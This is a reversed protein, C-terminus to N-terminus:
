NRSLTVTKTTFYDQEAVESYADVIGQILYKFGWTTISDGEINRDDDTHSEEVWAPLENLLKINIIGQPLGTARLTIMHSPEFSTIAAFMDPRYKEVSLVEFNDSVEYHNVDTLYDNSLPLSSFDVGVSFEFEGNERTANTLRKPDNRDKKFDGKKNYATSPEYVIQYDSPLFFRAHDIHGALSEIYNDDFYSNLLESKGFIFIYYPRTQRIVVGGTTVAFYYAGSFHSNLKVILAQINEGELRDIFRNRTEFGESILSTIPDTKDQIDYIADSIFVSINEHGANDLAIQFMANLDNGSIDGQNFCNPNLCNIFDQASNEIPTIKIDVPGNILNYDVEVNDRRFNTNQALNSVALVFNNGGVHSEDRTVYGFMGGSNDVFFSAKEASTLTSDNEETSGNGNINNNPRECASVFLFTILVSYTIYRGFDNTSKM